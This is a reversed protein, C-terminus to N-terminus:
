EEKVALLLSLGNVLAYQAYTGEPVLGNSAFVVHYYSGFDYRVTATDPNIILAMGPNDARKKYHVVFAGFSLNTFDITSMIEAKSKLRFSPYKKKLAIVGKLYNVMNLREDRLDYDIGNYEDGANYTNTNGKKSQGFEQGAHILPFGSALVTLANMLCIRRLRNENSEEPLCVRLKDYVTENDHCEVYNLSQQPENFLPPFAYPACSGLFVFKFSELYDSPNGSLYGQKGLSTGYSEGKVTNRFRDNFFGYSPLLAANNMSGREGESMATPMNWGEGYLMMDPKLARLAKEAEKLTTVDLIGMLDFRFGDVGFEKVFTVLADIILKRMMFRRSETDNGCGSAESLYGDERFRYYYNPVTLNLASNLFQFTHNFVVDLNVRIGKEHFASVLSRFELLRNYADEPNSSYSGEPVFYFLPDYGWNYTSSPDDDRITAFDMVPMLQVHTVGLSAIYDLGVPEGNRDTLGTRALASYTRRDKLDTLSTMDRVNAEYIIADTYDMFPGLKDENLPIEELRAPNIVYSFRSNMGLGKSYPDCVTVLHGNNRIEYLYRVGDLNGKVTAEYVGSPLRKMIAIALQSCTGYRVFAESALPAFVRFTTAEPTYIAGLEGEYRYKKEFEPLTSLYTIDLPSFENKGDAVTYNNGPIIDQQFSFIYIYTSKSESKTLFTLEEQLAEGCYLRMKKASPSDYSKKVAVEIHHDERLTAFFNLPYQQGM